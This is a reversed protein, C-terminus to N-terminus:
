HNQVLFAGAHCASVQHLQDQSNSPVLTINGELDVYWVSNPQSSEM